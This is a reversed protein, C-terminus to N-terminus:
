VTGNATSPLLGAFFTRAANFTQFTAKQQGALIMEGATNRDTWYHGTIEKEPHTAVKLWLAGYHMESRNRVELRPENRYVGSVCNLGDAECVIETGVLVSSSEATLLRMSLTSLTQRVVMYAEIPPVKLGTKPDIWNSRLEVRWTGGIFPRQVWREVFPMKWLWRDFILISNVRNSPCRM